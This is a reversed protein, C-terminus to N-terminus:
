IVFSLILVQVAMFDFYILTKITSRKKMVSMAGSLREMFRNSISCMFFEYDVISGAFGEGHLYLNNQIEVIQQIIIKYDLIIRGEM